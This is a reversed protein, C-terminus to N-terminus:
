YNETEKIEKPTPLLANMKKLLEVGVSSCDKRGLSFFDKGDLEIRIEEEGYFIEFM